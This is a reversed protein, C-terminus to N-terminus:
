GERGHEEEPERCLELPNGGVGPRVERASGSWVVTRRAFEARERVRSLQASRLGGCVEGVEVLDDM